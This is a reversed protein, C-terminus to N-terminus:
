VRLRQGRPTILPDRGQTARLYAAGGTSDARIRSRGINRNLRLSRAFSRSPGIRPNDRLGRLGQRRNLGPNRDRRSGRSSRIFSRSRMLLRRPVRRNDVM